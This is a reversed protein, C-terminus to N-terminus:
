REPFAEARLLIKRALTIAVSHFEIRHHKEMENNVVEIISRIDAVTGPTFGASMQEMESLLAIHALKLTRERAELLKQLEDIEGLQRTADASEDDKLM